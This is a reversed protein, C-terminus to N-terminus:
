KHLNNKILRSAVINFFFIDAVSRILWAFAVGIIGLTKVLVFLSILYIPLEILHIKATLDSRGFAQILYYGPHAFSNILLSVALIQAIRYSQNAFEENIWLTLGFKALFLIIIVAPLLLLFIYMISKNYLRVTRKIDRSLETSFAPFMVSMIATPILLLKLIIEYPTTYYAVVSASLMNAIFFRDFFHMFPSIINSLTMWSGFKALKKLYTIDFKIKYFNNITKSCIFFNLGASIFRGLVLFIVVVDLRHTFPFILMPVAYNFIAIPINILNITGFKQYSSLIGGLASCVFFVPLCLSLFHISNVSEEFYQPSIKLIHVIFEANLCLFLSGFVGLSFLIFISTWMVTSLDEVDNEGLKKSILQTLARGLGFDFLSAYGIVSWILTLIGFKENGLGKITLPIAFIAFGMPLIKASFNWIISKVLVKKSTLDQSINKNNLSDNEGLICNNM